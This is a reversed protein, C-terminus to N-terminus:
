LKYHFIFNGDEGITTKPRRGNLVEYAREIQEVVYKENERTVFFNTGNQDQSPAWGTEKIVSLKKICSVHLYFPVHGFMEPFHILM